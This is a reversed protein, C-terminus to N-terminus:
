TRTPSSTSRSPEILGGAVDPNYAGEVPVTVGAAVSSTRSARSADWTPPAPRAEMRGDPTSTSWRARAPTPSPTTAASRSADQRQVNLGTNADRVPTEFPVAVGDVANSSPAPVRLLRGARLPRDQDRLESLDHQDAEAPRRARLGRQHAGESRGDIDVFLDRPFSLVAVQSTGPQRAVDHDHRQARRAGKSRRVSARLAFRPRPVRQQRCRHDPLEQCRARGPSRRPPHERTPPREVTRVPAPSLRRRPPTSSRRRSTATRSWESAPTCRALPVSRASAMAFVAAITLRQAWTRPLKKASTPTDTPRPPTPAPPVSVAPPAPAEDRTPGPLEPSPPESM